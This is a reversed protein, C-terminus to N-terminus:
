NILIVGPVHYRRVMQTHSESMYQDCDPMIKPNAVSSRRERSNSDGVVSRDEREHLDALVLGRRSHQSPLYPRLRQLLANGAENEAKLAKLIRAIHKRRESLSQREAEQVLHLCTSIDGIYSPYQQASFMTAYDPGLHAYQYCLNEEQLQYAETRLSQNSLFASVEIHYFVCLRQTIVLDTDQTGFSANASQLQWHSFRAAFGKNKRLLRSVADAIATASESSTRSPRSSCSLSAPSATAQGANGSSHATSPLSAAITEVTSASAPSSMSITSAVTALSFRKINEQTPPWARSGTQESVRRAFDNTIRRFELREVVRYYPWEEYIPIGLSDALSESLWDGQLQSESLWDEM